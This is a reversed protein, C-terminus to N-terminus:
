VMIVVTTMMMAETITAVAVVAVRTGGAVFLDLFLFVFFTMVAVVVLCYGTTMGISWVDDRNQKSKADGHKQIYSAGTFNKEFSYLYNM